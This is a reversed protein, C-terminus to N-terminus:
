PLLEGLCVYSFKPITRSASACTSNVHFTTQPLTNIKKKPPPIGPTAAQCKQKITAKHHYKMKVPLTQGYIRDYQFIDELFANREALLKQFKITTHFIIDTPRSNCFCVVCKGILRKMAGIKALHRLEHKYGQHLYLLECLIHTGLKPHIEKFVILENSLNNGNM